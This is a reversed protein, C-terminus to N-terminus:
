KESDPNKLKLLLHEIYKRKPESFFKRYDEASVVDSKDNNCFYCILVCNEPSYTNSKSDLRELELSRGRTKFRKSTLIEDDILRNIDSQRTECYHCKNDQKQQQEIFWKCFDTEEFKVQFAFVTQAAKSQKRLIRYYLEKAKKASM